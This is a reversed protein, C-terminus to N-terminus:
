WDDIAIYWPELTTRNKWADHHGSQRAVSVARVPEATGSPSVTTL